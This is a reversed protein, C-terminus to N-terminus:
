HSVFIRVSTHSICACPCSFTSISINKLSYQRGFNESTSDTCTQEGAGYSCSEPLRRMCDDRGVPCTYGSTAQQQAVVNARNNAGFYDDCAGFFSDQDGVLVAAVFLSHIFNLESSSVSVSRRVPM